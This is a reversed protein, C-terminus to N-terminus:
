IGGTFISAEIVRTFSLHLSEMVLIFLYPALPNRQKLGHHFQFESTPSGNVLISAMGSNLCGRIWSRWKSGFGFSHLVDELYDWRISDYAKAFDVKFVMARQKKHHCRALLENIIFPGDLIQRNPLFVTQVDSILDSIVVSLRTALIKTIVKYMSGILSIPRYDGVSKPDLSKPILAIFSSNCGISFSAHDFFWEVATCFGPGVLGSWVIELETSQEHNLRNPFSFNIKGHCIGPDQFRAAFHNRFEDKVRSPDDVWDGDIMICDVAWSIKAKSISDRADVALGVTKREKQDAVYMRIEKKLNTVEKQDIMRNSYLDGMVNSEGNWRNIAYINFLTWLVRNILVYDAQPAYVSIMNFNKQNPIWNGCLAVFNYPFYYSARKPFCKSGMYMSIGGSIGLAEAFIYDFNPFKGWLFKVDIASINEMKTEQITFFFVKNKINLERIWEKKAKSGLGQINLSLCNMPFVEHAGAIWHDKERWIKNSGELFFGYNDIPCQEQEVQMDHEVENAMGKDPTFGLPFPISSDTGTIDVAEKRKNLLDYIKFPDNSIEKEISQPFFESQKVGVEKDSDDDSCYATESVDTFTPSWTFLEKARVVFIKGKVIIKFKELINDEQNTKICIRKRAFFDDKCEELDLVEGWKSGIKHFTTSSWVHMPVGEIDVWVIRDRSVFDSQANSLCNFWSAVGVHKLFKAKSKSSTLEIMVWLGGLYVVKANPFGENSLIVHLTNISSFQKVEGMVYNGLDRSVVCSDDLVMAPSASVPTNWVGNVAAPSSGNVVNVYSGTQFQGKAQDVGRPYSPAAAVNNHSSLNPKKPREFRAPNAFLHFRGIWITNLNEILRDLNIVKIFRVFAFRKGVKSKKTPIFVDVVTGYDNCVKWLDKATCGEPFNSVFVSKSIRVTQDAKSQLSNQNHAGM